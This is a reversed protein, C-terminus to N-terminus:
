KQAYQAQLDKFVDHMFGLTPRMRPNPHLGAQLLDNLADAVSGRALLPQVDNGYVRELYIETCPQLAQEFDEPEVPLLMDGFPAEGKVARYLTASLGFVTIKEEDLELKNGSRLLTEPASYQLTFTDEQHPTSLDIFRAGLHEDVIVNEPKVDRQYWGADNLYMLTTVMDLGVSVADEVDLICDALTPGVIAERHVYPIHGYPGEIRGYAHIMPFRFVYPRAADDDYDTLVELLRAQSLIASQDAEQENCTANGIRLAHPTGQSDRIVYVAAQGGAGLLNHDNRFNRADCYAKVASQAVVHDLPAPEVRHPAGSGVNRRIERQM